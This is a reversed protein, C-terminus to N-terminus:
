WPLKATDPIKVLKRTDTQGSIILVEDKRVNLTKALFRILEINARGKEPVAKLRIKLTEDDMKEVFETRASRPAVKVQIYTM